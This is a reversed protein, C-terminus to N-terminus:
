LDGIRYDMIKATKDYYKKQVKQAKFIQEKAAIKANEWKELYTSGEDRGIDYKQNVARDTPLSPM